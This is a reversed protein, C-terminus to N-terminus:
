KIPESRNSIAIVETTLKYIVCDVLGQITPVYETLDWRNWEEVYM